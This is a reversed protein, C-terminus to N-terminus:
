FYFAKEADWETPVRILLGWLWRSCWPASICVGIFHHSWTLWTQLPKVDYSAAFGEYFASSPSVFLSPKKASVAHWCLHSFRSIDTVPFHCPKEKGPHPTKGRTSSTLQMCAHQSVHVQSALWYVHNWLIVKELLRLRSTINQLRWHLFSLLSGYSVLSFLLFACWMRVCHVGPTFPWSVKNCFSSTALLSFSYCHDDSEKALM